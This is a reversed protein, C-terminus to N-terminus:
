INNVYTRKFSDNSKKVEEEHVFGCDCAWLKFPNGDIEVEYFLKM